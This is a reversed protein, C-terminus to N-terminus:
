AASRATSSAVATRTVTSARRAIRMRSACARTRRPRTPPAIPLSAARLRAGSIVPMDPRARPPHTLRTVRRSAHETNSEGSRRITPSRFAVPTQVPPLGPGCDRVSSCAGNVKAAGSRVCDTLGSTDDGATLICSQTPKCRASTVPDCSIQCAGLEAGSTRVGPNLPVCTGSACDSTGTRCVSKCVGYWYTSGAVCDAFSNCDDGQGVTGAKVCDSYGITANKEDAFVGPQCKEGTACGSQPFLSCDQTCLGWTVGGVSASTRHPRCSQGSPCDSGGIKCYKRCNGLSCDYGSACAWPDEICTNTTTATGAAACQGLWAGTENQYLWCGQGSPCIQTGLDCRVKCVNTGPSAVTNGSNDKYLWPECVEGSSCQSPDNCYPRCIANRCEMGRKCEENASCRDGDAKLGTTVCKTTGDVAVVVCNQSAPCGCDTLADCVKGAPPACTASGATGGTGPTGAVGGKGAIAGGTSAIGGSAPRGGAGSSGGTGLPVGGSSTIREPGDGMRWCANDTACYYGTPCGKDCALEGNEPKPNFGCAAMLLLLVSRVVRV